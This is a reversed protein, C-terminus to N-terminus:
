IKTWGYVSPEWVNADIESEWTFGNWTVQDGIGYADHAGSPQKWETIVGDPSVKTYLSAVENPLWDAQSTHAQIVKYLENHYSVVDDIAYSVGVEWKPYLEALKILDEDTLENALVKDKTSIKSLWALQEEKKEEETLPRDEYEYFIENTSTDMYLIARKGKYRVANPETGQIMADYNNQVEQPPVNNYITSVFARTSGEEVYNGLFYAM